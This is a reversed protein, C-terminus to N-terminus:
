RISVPQPMSLLLVTRHELMDMGTSTNFNRGVATFSAPLSMNGEVAAYGSDTQGPIFWTLHGIKLIDSVPLPTHSRRSSASPSIECEDLVGTTQAQNLLPSSLDLESGNLPTGITISLPTLL